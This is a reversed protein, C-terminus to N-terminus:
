WCWALISVVLLGLAVNGHISIYVVYCTIDYTSQEYLVPLHHLAFCVVRGHNMVTPGEESASSRRLQVPNEDTPEDASDARDPEGDSRTDPKRLDDEDDSIVIPDDWSAGSM